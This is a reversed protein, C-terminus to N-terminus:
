ILVSVNTGVYCSIEAYNLFTLKIHTFMDLFYRLPAVLMVNQYKYCFTLDNIETGATTLVVYM